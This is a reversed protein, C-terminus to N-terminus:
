YNGWDNNLSDFKNPNIYNGIVYKVIYTILVDNIKYVDNNM